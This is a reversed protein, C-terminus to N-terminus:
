ARRAYLHFNGFAVTVRCKMNETPSNEDRYKQEHCQKDSM